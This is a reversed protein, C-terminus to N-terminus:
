RRLMSRLSALGSFAAMWCEDPGVAHLALQVLHIHYFRPPPRQRKQQSVFGDSRNCTSPLNHTLSSLPGSLSSSIIALPLITSRRLSSSPRGSMLSITMWYVGSRSATPGASSRATVFIGVNQLSIPIKATVGARCSISQKIPNPAANSDSPSIPAMSRGSCQCWSPRGYWVASNREAYPPSGSVDLVKNVPLPLHAPQWPLSGFLKALM